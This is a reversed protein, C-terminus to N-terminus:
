KQLFYKNFKDQNSQAKFNKSITFVPNIQYPKVSTFISNLLKGELMEIRDLLHFNQNSSTFYAQQGILFKTNGGILLLILIVRGM